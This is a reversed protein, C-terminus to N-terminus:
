FRKHYNFLAIEALIDAEQSISDPDGDIIESMLARLRHSPKGSDIISTAARCYPGRMILPGLSILDHSTYNTIHRIILSTIWRDGSLIYVLPVCKNDVVSHITYSQPFIRPSVYFTGDAIWNSHESLTEM